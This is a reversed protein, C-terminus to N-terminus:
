PRTTETQTSISHGQREFGARAEIKSAHDTGLNCFLREIGCEQLGVLFYAATTAAATPATM